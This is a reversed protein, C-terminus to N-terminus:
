KTVIFLATSVGTIGLVAHQAQNRSVNQLPEDPPGLKVGFTEEQKNRQSQLQLNGWGLCM